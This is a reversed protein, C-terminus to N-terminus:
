ISFYGERLSVDIVNGVYLVQKIAGVVFFLFQNKLLIQEVPSLNRLFLVHEEDDHFYYGNIWVDTVYEPTIEQENLRLVVGSSKCEEAFIERSKALYTKFQENTLYQHCLSYITFLHVPEDQSIFRRFLTLFSRLAEPDPEHPIFTVEWPGETGGIRRGELTVGPNFGSQLLRTHRLEESRDRFLEFRLRVNM